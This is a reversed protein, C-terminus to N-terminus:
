RASRHGRRLRQDATWTGALVARRVTPWAHPVSWKWVVLDYFYPLQDIPDLDARCGACLPYCWPTSRRREGDAGWLVRRLGDNMVRYPLRCRQCRMPTTGGTGMLAAM